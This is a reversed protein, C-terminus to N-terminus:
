YALTPTRGCFQWPTSSLINLLIYPLQYPHEQVSLDLSLKPAPHDEWGGQHGAVPKCEKSQAHVRFSFSIQGLLLLQSSCHKNPLNKQSSWWSLQRQMFRNAAQPWSHWINFGFVRSPQQSFFRLDWRLRQSAENSTEQIRSQFITDGNCFDYLKHRVRGLSHVTCLICQNCLRSAGLEIDQIGLCSFVSSFSRAVYCSRYM